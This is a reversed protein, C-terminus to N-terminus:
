GVVPRSGRVRWGRAVPDTVPLLLGVDGQLRRSSRPMGMEKGVRQKAFALTPMVALSLVALIIGVPSTLPEEQGILSKVAEWTIYIALLLVHDCGCVACTEGGRERREGARTTWCHTAAM